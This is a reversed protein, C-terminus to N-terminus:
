DVGLAQSTVSLDIRGSVPGQPPDCGQRQFAVVEIGMVVVIKRERQRNREERGRVGIIRRCMTTARVKGM